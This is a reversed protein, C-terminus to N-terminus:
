GVRPGFIATGLRIMTAGAEVAWEWDGSMGMSLDALPAWPWGENRCMRWLEAMEQMDHRIRRAEEESNERRAPLVTMLGVVRLKSHPGLRELFPRVESAKLGWKSPEEAINVELMVDKVASLRQNLARVLPERDVSDIADFLEIAYKVKNTQLHGICHLPIPPKEQGWKQRAEQVWNEGIADVGAQVAMLAEERSRAKTVAMVAVHRAPALRRLTDRIAGVREGIM